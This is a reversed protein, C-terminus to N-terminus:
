KLLKEMVFAEKTKRDSFSELKKEKIEFGLSQYFSLAQTQSSFVNLRAKQWKPNKRIETLLHSILKRGIGKNRAESAVFVGQIKVTPNLDPPNTERASVMGVLENDLKAFFIWYNIGEAAKALRQKWKEDSMSLADELTQGFAEPNEKLARLRLEKYKQWDSPTLQVIELINM